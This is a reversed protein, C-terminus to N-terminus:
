PNCLWENISSRAVALRLGPELCARGDAAAPLGERLLAPCILLLKPSLGHFRLRYRVFRWMWEGVVQKAAGVSYSFEDKSLSSAAALHVVEDFAGM